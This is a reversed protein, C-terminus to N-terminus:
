GRPGTFAEADRQKFVLLRHPAAVLGEVRHIEACTASAGSDLEVLYRDVREALLGRYCASERESATSVSSGESM